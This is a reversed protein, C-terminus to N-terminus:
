RERFVYGHQDDRITLVRQGSNSPSFEFDGMGPGVIVFSVSGDPNRRSAVESQWEGFDFRTHGQARIVDLEGLADNYYHDALKIAEKPDAPLTLRKRTEALEAFFAKGRSALDADAEARGDFLVELLKRRFVNTLIWGPDASTLIV